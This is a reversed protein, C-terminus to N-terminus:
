LGCLKTVTGNNLTAAHLAAGSAVAEDPDLNSTIKKGVFYSELMNSVLPIRTSGGILIVQDIDDKSKIGPAEKIVRKVIDMTKNLLPKILEEFKSRTVTVNLDVDKYIVQIDVDMSECSSLAQKVSECQLRLRAIPRRFEEKNQLLDIKEQRKFEKACHEVLLSDFDEGGLHTDGDVALTEVDTCKIKAISVDFTGGGLDYILCTKDEMVSTKMMYAIAAATPENLITLVEIGAVKAAEITARRQPESFYAPVTIVAKNISGPAQNLYKETQRCFISLLKASVEQPHRTKIGIKIKPLGKADVVEFPWTKIDRQMVPDSWSRGIMRKADFVTCEPQRYSQEKAVKGYSETKGNSPYAVYSPTLRIGQEHNPVIVVKDDVCVAVACYTTGLDIGIAIGNKSEM